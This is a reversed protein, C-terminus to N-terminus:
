NVIEPRSAPAESSCGWPCSILVHGNTTALRALLELSEDRPLHEPGEDWFVLGYGTIDAPDIDPGQPHHGIPRHETPTM